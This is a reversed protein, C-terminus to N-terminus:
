QVRGHLLFGVHRNRTHHSAFNAQYSTVHFGEITYIIITSKVFAIEFLVSRCNLMRNTIQFCIPLVLKYFLVTQIMIHRSCPTLTPLYCIVDTNSLVEEMFAHFCFLIYECSQRSNAYLIGMEIDNDM